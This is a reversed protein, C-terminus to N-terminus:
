ASRIRTDLPWRPAAKVDPGYGLRVFMQLTEAEAIGLEDRLRLFNPRMESYEQLAQSFPQMAIGLGTAALNLRVYDRGAAIQDARGNGPTAQWLFAMASDFNPKLVAEQQQWVSSSPDLMAERSLVGAIALGELLPGSLDIGDPNAEIEARGIRMIDVSEKLTHPTALEVQMAAWALDRLRQVKAPEHAHAIRGGRAAGAIAALAETPVPRSMDYEEKNSRRAMVHRFLPDSEVAADQVFTIQAVPRADLRPQPEGEPFLTIDTRHGTQAAAMALLEIFAGLGITIQRDFPDTFPLRRDLECYLTVQGPSGLDALWPQRNHPNPALLAYSLANRRPDSEGRGAVEWPIRAKKPDRTAAWLGGGAAALVIGGGVLKLINRRTAM